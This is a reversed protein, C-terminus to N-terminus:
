KNEEKRTVRNKAMIFIPEMKGNEYIFSLSTIPVTGVTFFQMTMQALIDYGTDNRIDGIILVDQHPVSVTMHGDIKQEMERLFAVNLIRSADYGDKNNVFYFVNGAVEDRKVETPLSRVKFLASEIIEQESVGLSAIMTEDILRYTTGLDLAYFIRTEATHDKYIFPDGAKSTLPFSTSRIVPYIVTNQLFGEALEKEMATFTENITYVVERISAEGDTEYKALIEPLSIDMGKNLLTHELRVKDNKRDFNWKFEHSPLKEKLIQVLQASKM